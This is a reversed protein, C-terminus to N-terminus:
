TAKPTCFATREITSMRSLGTKGRELDHHFADIAPSALTAQTLAGDLELRYIAGSVASGIVFGDDVFLATTSNRVGIAM